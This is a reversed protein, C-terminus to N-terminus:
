VIREIRHRQPTREVTIARGDALRALLQPIQRQLPHHDGEGLARRHDVALGHVFTLRHFRRRADGQAGLPDAHPVADDLAAPPQHHEFYGVGWGASVAVGSGIGVRAGVSIGARARARARGAAARALLLVPLGRRGGSRLTRHRPEWVSVSSRLHDFIISAPLLCGRKSWSSLSCRLKTSATLSRYGPFIVGASSRSYWSSSTRRRAAPDRASGNRLIRTFRPTSVSLSTSTATRLARAACSPKMAALSMSAKRLAWCSVPAVSSRTSTFSPSVVSSSM